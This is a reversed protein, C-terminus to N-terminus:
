LINVFKNYFIKELYIVFLIMSGFNKMFAFDHFIEVFIFNKFEVNWYKLNITPRINLSVPSPLIIKILYRMFVKFLSKVVM